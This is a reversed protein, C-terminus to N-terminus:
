GVRRTLADIRARFGYVIERIRRIKDFEIELEDIQAIISRFRAIEQEAQASSMYVLQQQRQMAVQTEQNLQQLRQQIAVMIRDFHASLLHLSAPDLLLQGHSSAHSAARSASRTGANSLAIQQHRRLTHRDDRSLGLQSDSISAPPAM